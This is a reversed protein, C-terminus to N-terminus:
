VADAHGALPWDGNVEPPDDVANFAAGKIIGVGLAPTTVGTDVVPSGYPSVNWDHDITAITFGVPRLIVLGMAATTSMTFTVSSAQSSAIKGWTKNWENSSRDVSLLSTWGGDDPGTISGNRTVGACVLLDGDQVLSTDFLYSSGTYAGSGGILEFGYPEGGGGGGGSGRGSRLADHCQCAEM